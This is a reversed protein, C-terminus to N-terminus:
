SLQERQDRVKMRCIKRAAMYEKVPNVANLSWDLEQPQVRWMLSGDEMQVNVQDYMPSVGDNKSWCGTVPKSIASLEAEYIFRILLYIGVIVAIVVIILLLKFFLETEFLALYFEFGVVVFLFLVKIVHLFTRKAALTKASIEGAM